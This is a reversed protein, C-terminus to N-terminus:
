QKGNNSNPWTLGSSILQPQQQLIVGRNSSQLMTLSPSSSGSTGTGQGSMM